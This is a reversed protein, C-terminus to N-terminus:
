QLLPDSEKLPTEIVIEAEASTALAENESKTTVAPRTKTQTPRILRRLDCFYCHFLGRNLIQRPKFSKTSLKETFTVEVNCKYVNYEMVIDSSCPDESNSPMPVSSLKPLFSKLHKPRTKKVVHLSLKLRLREWADAPSLLPPNHIGKKQVDVQWFYFGLSQNCHQDKGVHDLYDQVTNFVHTCLACRYLERGNHDKVINRNTLMKMCHQMTIHNLFQGERCTFWECLECM